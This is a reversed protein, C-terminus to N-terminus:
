AQKCLMIDEYKTQLPQTHLLMASAAIHALVEAQVAGIGVDQDCATGVEHGELAGPYGCGM